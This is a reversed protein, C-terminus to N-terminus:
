TFAGAVGPLTPTYTGIWDPIVAGDFAREGKLFDLLLYPDESCSRGNVKNYASMADWPEAQHIAVRLPFLNTERLAREAVQSSLTRQEFEFDNCVSHKISAGVGQGQLGDIYAIAMRGTLFPDESYCELDRGAPQPRHM